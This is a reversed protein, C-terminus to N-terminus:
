PNRWFWVFRMVNRYLYKSVDIRSCHKIAACKAAMTSKAYGLDRKNKTTKGSGRTQKKIFM